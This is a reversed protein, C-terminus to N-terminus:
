ALEYSKISQLRRLFKQLAVKNKYHESRIMNLIALACLVIYKKMVQNVYFIPNVLSLKHGFSM